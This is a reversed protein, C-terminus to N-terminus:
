RVVCKLLPQSTDDYELLDGKDYGELDDGAKLVIPEEEHHFSVQSLDLKTAEFLITLKETPAIRSLRGEFGKAFSLFGLDVMRKVIEIMKASLNLANYRSNAKWGSKSMHVALYMSPDSKWCVYLDLILVKLHKKKPAKPKPGRRPKAEDQARLFALGCKM